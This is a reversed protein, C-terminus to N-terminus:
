PSEAVREDWAEDWVGRERMYRALGPHVPVSDGAAAVGRRQLAPMDAAIQAFGPEAQALETANAEIITLMRYVDDGPVELGVHFGYFFPVFHVPGEVDSQFVAPDISVVEMGADRLPEIEEDSPNLVAIDAAVEAEAVWPPLSAEGTTYAIFADIGGRSLESGALGTDLERYRHGVELTGLARELQARVDWPAPGTFVPRDALDRWATYRDADAARVVLGVEMTYAWFSQVPQREVREAFGAFRGADEALERFAIDAGYYGDYRGLAYGRITAVAGSTPMVDIRYDDMERNLVAMLSVKARHGASGTASTAWRLTTVGEDEACGALPVAAALALSAALATTPLRPSM